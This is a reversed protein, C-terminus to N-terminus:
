PFSQITHHRDLVTFHFTKTTVGLPVLDPRPVKKAFSM